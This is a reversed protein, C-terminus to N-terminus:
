DNQNDLTQQRTSEEFLLHSNINGSPKCTSVSKDTSKISPSWSQLEDQNVNTKKSHMLYMVGSKDPMFHQCTQHYGWQTQWIFWVNRKDRHRFTKKKRKGKFDLLKVFSHRPTTRTFIRLYVTYDKLM